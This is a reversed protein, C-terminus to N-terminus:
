GSYQQGLLTYYYGKREILSAHNGEEMVKGENLCIIKDANQITSLRHAIVIITKQKEKLHNIANQVYQESAFDLSSTAEDLILIEPNKYLARAIAIRQKEGGSLTAGNEGIYTRYNHPLKDIFTNMYLMKCIDLVKQFDPEYEGIAINDIINGAFLDIKQPVVSVMRRLSDVSIHKIDYQGIEISGSLLPYINQLISMLTTKGSGSEGVIATTKGKEICLSLDEFVHVRTGYRFSVNKFRIDGIMSPTLEIRSAESEERELDMIQFLRDAAILVDQISQNSTVLSMVPGM